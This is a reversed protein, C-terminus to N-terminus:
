LLDRREVMRHRGPGSVVTAGRATPFGWRAGLEPIHQFDMEHIGAILTPVLIIAAWSTLQKMVVSLRNSVQALESEFASTLLDRINDVFGVARIPFISTAHFGVEARQERRSSDELSPGHLGFAEQLRLPEEATPAVVDLWLRARARRAVQVTSPDFPEQGELADDRHVRCTIM